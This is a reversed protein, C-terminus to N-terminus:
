FPSGDRGLEEQVAIWEQRGYLEEWRERCDDLSPMAYFYARDKTITRSFGDGGTVEIEARKQIKRLRPCVRNLFRGIATASGRRTINFRRAYNVYDNVLAERLIERPWLGDGLLSGEELKGFWWEEEVSLSLLKQERLADTEPAQRPNFDGLDLTLLHHLLAERGGDDMQEAIARFYATDQQHERSVDLVFFRREDGGAPIVHMDNSAMILHIFNPATEVDVGKKEIALTEETILTKLVSAHKKDGAFFAEDAFLVVVDRLHSNFNGVLHGPNSVQMFHRAFLSGFTKAFFSKGTGRMGRLVIAVEGPSAPQQAARAMWRELWRFHEESGDCVVVRVYELFLSCDGPINQCGFGKWLNYAGDVERNPAFVVTEYQRRAPHLLWWKGVSMYQPAGEKTEGVQVSKNMYRNRFDDFSQMTLYSRGLVPDWREQVVRCKGGIDEIVAHKENLIRLWPEDAEEKAREIQRLAYRRANAGLELVSESIGFDPDTLVSYLVEDPVGCRVMNCCFDFLWASRSDDGEKPEDPHRGQVAIVKLRDPVSWQDLEDVGVLREVQEAVQVTHGDGLGASTPSQVAAAKAFDSLDYVREDQFWTQEALTPVRGKKKKKADPLNVTGPLRMIRDVNHCSDAGFLIELQLNYLKAEEYREPDGDIRMPERLRWFGQYGGGSFVVCTPAPVGEPLREGFLGLIREHESELNEGARPDVDVHLWALAAVNERKSKKATEDIAPNVQFYVNRRGNHQELWATLDAESEPRFTRTEIGKKDLSICTLIWPGEPSWLRLFALAAANDPQPAAM